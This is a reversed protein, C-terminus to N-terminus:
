YLRTGSGQLNMGGNRQPAFGCLVFVPGSPESGSDDIFAKLMAYFRSQRRRHPLGCTDSSLFEIASLSM